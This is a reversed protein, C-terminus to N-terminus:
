DIEEEDATVKSLAGLVKTKIEKILKEDERLAEIFKELGQFKLDGYKFWAGGREIVGISVGESIVEKITDFHSKPVGASNEQAYFDYSGTKFPANLKNKNVKFKIVQGVVEKNDGTGEVIFDAGRLRVTISSYFDKARGGPAYEPDGYNVGIKERLQNVIICTFPTKNVRDLLNNNSNSKRLFLDMLKQKLGMQVSESLDINKEKNPVMSALSDIVVLHVQESLQMDLAINLAEEMSEPLIYLLNDVDVGVTQMYIPPTTGEVDIFSCRLGMQQAERIIHACLTSKTSSFKGELLTLRGIPIGGGLAVDLSFSGSPIRKIVKKKPIGLVVANEGYEKNLNEVLKELQKNSKKKVTM